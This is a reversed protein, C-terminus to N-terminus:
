LGPDRAALRPRGPGPPAPDLRGGLPVTLNDDLTTPLSEVLACLLNLALAVGLTRPWHWASASLPLRSTWAILVATGLTGFVVFGLFGAWGKSRNWPLRPGGLSQGVFSAMGDGFALVGWLAAAM